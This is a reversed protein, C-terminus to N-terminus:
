HPLEYKVCNILLHYARALGPKSCITKCSPLPWKLPNASIYELVGVSLLVNNQSFKTFSVAIKTISRMFSNDILFENIIFFSVFCHVGTRTFRNHGEVFSYSKAQFLQM